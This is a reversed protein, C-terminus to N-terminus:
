RCQQQTCSHRQMGLFFRSGVMQTRGNRQPRRDLTVADVKFTFFERRFVQQLGANVQVEVGIDVVTDLGIRGTIDLHLLRLLVIQEIQKGGAKTGLAEHFTLEFNRRGGTKFKKDVALGLVHLVRDLITQGLYTRSFDAQTQLRLGIILDDDLQKRRGVILRLRDQLTLELALLIKIVDGEMHRGVQFTTKREVISGEPRLNIGDRQRGVALVQQGIIPAIVRGLTRARPLLQGLHLRPAHNMRVHGGIGTPHGHAALEVVSHRTVFLVIQDDEVRGRHALFCHHAVQRFSPEAPRGRFVVQNIRGRVFALLHATGQLAHQHGVVTDGARTVARIQHLVVQLSTQRLTQCVTRAGDIQVVDGPVTGFQETGGRFGVNGLTRVAQSGQELEVQGRHLGIRQHTLVGVEVGSGIRGVATLQHQNAAGLGEAADALVAARGMALSKSM